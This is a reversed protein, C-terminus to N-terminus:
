EYKPYVINGIISCILRFDSVYFTELHDANQEGIFFVWAKDKRGVRRAQKGEEKAAELENLLMTKKAQSWSKWEVHLQYSKSPRREEWEGALPIILREESQTIPLWLLESYFIKTDPYKQIPSGLRKFVTLYNDAEIGPIELSINRDHPFHIFARCIPRISQAKRRSTRQPGNGHGAAVTPSHVSTPGNIGNGLNPATAPRKEILVLGSPSLGPSSDLQQRVSQTQGQSIVEREADADCHILHEKGPMKNFSPRKKNEKKWSSPYMDIGCGWCEYGDKDVHELMWLTEAEIIEGTRKDRASEM